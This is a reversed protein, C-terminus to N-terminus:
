DAPADEEVDVSPRLLRVVGEGGVGDRPCVELRAGLGLADGELRAVDEEDARAPHLPVHGQIRGPSLLLSINRAGKVVRVGADVGRRLHHVKQVVMIKSGSHRVLDAKLHPRGLRQTLGLRVQTELVKGPLHSVTAKIASESWAYMNGRHPMGM